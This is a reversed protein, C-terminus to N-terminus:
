TSTVNRICPILQSETKEHSSDQSRDSSRRRDRSRENLSILDGHLSMKTHAVVGKAVHPPTSSHKYLKRHTSNLKRDWNEPDSSNSDYPHPRGAM